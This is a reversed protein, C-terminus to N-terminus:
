LYSIDPLYNLNIETKQAGTQINIPAMDQFEDEYRYIMTESLSDSDLYLKIANKFYTSAEVHNITNNKLIDDLFQDCFCTIYQNPLSVKKLYVSFTSIFIERTLFNEIHLKNKNMLLTM